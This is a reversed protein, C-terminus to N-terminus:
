PVDKKCRVSVFMSYMLKSRRVKSNNSFFNRTYMEPTGYGASNALSSSVLNGESGFNLTNVPNTTIRGALIVYFGGKTSPKSKLTNGSVSTQCPAIMALNHGNSSDSGRFWAPPYPAQTEWGSNWTAPSFPTDTPIYSSYTERKNYIEKELENWERDSPIHWGNPCIGQVKGAGISEVEDPGPTESEEQGQDITYLKHGGLAAYGNYMLGLPEYDKVWKDDMGDGGDPMPYLWMPEDVTFDLSPSAPLPTGDAYKRARLNYLMWRGADGFDGSYFQNGDQDAHVQVGSALSSTQDSLSEWRLGNWVYAGTGDATVTNLCNNVNYVVMGAHAKDYNDKKDGVNNIYGTDASFMPYLNRWDTLNVRPLLLGKTSNAGGNTSNEQKLDLLAGASPPIGSGITVQALITQTFSFVGLLLLMRSITRVCRTQKFNALKM